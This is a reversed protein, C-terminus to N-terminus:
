IDKAFTETLTPITAPPFSESLHKATLYGMCFAGSSGDTQRMADYAIKSYRFDPRKILEPNTLLDVGLDFLGQQRSANAFLRFGKTFEDISKACMKIGVRRLDAEEDFRKFRVLNDAGPLTAFFFLNYLPEGNAVAQTTRISVSVRATKVKGTAHLADLLMAKLYDSRKQMSKVRALMRDAEEKAAKAEADLERLYLATAEIKEAAEAEVAHLEDASLIEGTEEDLEIHDLAQRIADSIQYLKM